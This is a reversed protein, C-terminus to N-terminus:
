STPRIRKKIWVVLEDFDIFKTVVDMILHEVEDEATLHSQSEIEYGSNELFLHFLIFATRKNGDTFGHNSAVSHLLAAAKKYIPRYYGNYPRAIASEILGLDQIGKRGGFELAKEHAGIADGM